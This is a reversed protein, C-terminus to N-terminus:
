HLFTKYKSFHYQNIAKTRIVACLSNLHKMWYINGCTFFLLPSVHGNPVSNKNSKEEHLIIKMLPSMYIHNTETLIWM